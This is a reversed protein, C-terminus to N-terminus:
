PTNDVVPAYLVYNKLRQIARLCTAKCAYSQSAAIHRSAKATVDLIRFAYTETTPQYVEIKLKTM